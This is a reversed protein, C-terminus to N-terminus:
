RRKNIGIIKYQECKILVIENLHKMYFPNKVDTVHIDINEGDKVASVIVTDGKEVTKKPDYKKKTTNNKKKESKANTTRKETKYLEPRSFSCREFDLCNHEGVCRQNHNRSVACTCKYGTNYVCNISNRKPKKNRLYEYHWPTGQLQSRGM